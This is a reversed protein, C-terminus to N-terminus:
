TGYGLLNDAAQTVLEMPLAPALGFYISALALVVLIAVASRSLPTDNGVPPASFFLTELFRALYVVSMLSSLLVIVLLAIAGSPLELIAQILLWKSLFWATGPIGVFRLGAITIAIAVIPHRRGLGAFSSLEGSKAQLALLGIGIFMTGKALAHNFSHLLAAMLGSHSVLAAGLIIYGVQGVSSWAFIKKALSDRMAMYAGALIAM